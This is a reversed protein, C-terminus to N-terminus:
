LHDTPWFDPKNKTGRGKYTCDICRYPAASVPGGSVIGLEADITRDEVIYLIGYNVAYYEYGAAPIIQSSCDSVQPRYLGESEPIFRQAATPVSVEIYGVVLAASDTTCRINGSVEAPMASFIGGTQTINKNQSEYYKYAEERIQYQTIHIYYLISFKDGSPDIEILKQQSVVNDSLGKTSGVNYLKSSDAGWCYYTNRSSNLDYKLFTSNQISYIAGNAFLEAKYEWHERYYWRYYPSQNSNDHTSVTIYVSKNEDRVIYSISDIPPTIFPALFESEYERGEWDIHVRYQLAADLEPMAIEYKGGGAYRVDDYRAGDNSEVYLVADSVMEAVDEDMAIGRALEIVTTGGTIMGGVALFKDATTLLKPEFPDICSALCYCIALSLFLFGKEIHM